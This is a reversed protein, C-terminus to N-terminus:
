DKFKQLERILENASLDLLKDALEARRNMEKYIKERPWGARTGSFYVTRRIMKKMEHLAADRVRKQEEVSRCRQTEDFAAELWVEAEIRRSDVPHDDLWTEVESEVTALEKGSKSLFRCGEGTVLQLDGSITLYKPM